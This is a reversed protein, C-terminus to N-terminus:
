LRLITLEQGFHLLVFNGIIRIDRMCHLVMLLANSELILLLTQPSAGQLLICLMPDDCVFCVLLYFQFLGQVFLSELPIAEFVVM